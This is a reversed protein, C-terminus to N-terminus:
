ISVASALNEAFRVYVKIDCVIVRGKPSLRRTSSNYLAFRAFNIQLIGNVFVGCLYISLISLPAASMLVGLVFRFTRRRFPINGFGIHACDTANCQSPYLRVPQTSDCVHLAILCMKCYECLYLLKPKNAERCVTKQQLNTKEKYFQSCDVASCCNLVLCEISVASGFTKRPNKTAYTFPLM